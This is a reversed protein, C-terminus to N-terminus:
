WVSNKSPSGIIWFKMLLTTLGSSTELPILFMVISLIPFKIAVMFDLRPPGLIMSRAYAM